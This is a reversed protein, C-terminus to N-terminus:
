SVYQESNGTSRVSGCVPMVTIKVSSKNKAIINSLHLIITLEHLNSHCTINFCCLPDLCRTYTSFSLTVNYSWNKGKEGHEVTKCFQRCIKHFLQTKNHAKMTRHNLQRCIRKDDTPEIESLFVMYYYYYLLLLIRTAYFILCCAVTMPSM